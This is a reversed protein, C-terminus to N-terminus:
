RTAAVIEAAGQALLQQAVQEGVAVAGALSGSGSARLVQTGALNAVLGDLFLRGKQVRGWAGVPASCGGHLQALMSREASTAQRSSFDDLESLLECVSVNEEHCEIGLAGQGVAPLMRPPELLEAIRSELGLRQLGAAALLVADVEGADLKSLRTEVNGRIGTIVLDPRLYKLQAQRRLSGTGVRAGEPLAELTGAVHTVLADSAVARPPVAAVTLGAVRETPLDKLSHVAVDVRGDLIATQIEKTFVGQLGLAAVPGSQQTDGSTVIEVLESAVGQQRLREAVWNAQWQALPSSRTGIRLLSITM